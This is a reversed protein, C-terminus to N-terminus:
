LTFYTFLRFIILVVMLLIVLAFVNNSILLVKITGDVVGGGGGGVPSSSNTRNWLLPTWESEQWSENQYLYRLKIWIFRERHRQHFAGLAYSFAFTSNVYETQMRNWAEPIPSSSSPSSTDDNESFYFGVYAEKAGVPHAVYLVKRDAVISSLVLAVTSLLMICTNKM